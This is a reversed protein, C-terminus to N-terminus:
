ITDGREKNETRDRHKAKDRERRRKVELTLLVIEVVKEVAAAEGEGPEYKAYMAREIMKAYSNVFLRIAGNDDFSDAASFLPQLSTPSLSSINPCLAQRMTHLTSLIYTRFHMNEWKTGPRGWGEQQGTTAQSIHAIVATRTYETAIHNAVKKPLDVTKTPIYPKPMTRLIRKISLVRSWVHMIAIIGLAVYSGVLVIINWKRQHGTRWAQEGLGWASGVLLVGIILIFLYFSTHYLISRLRRLSFLPSRNYRRRRGNNNNNSNQKKKNDKTPKVSQSPTGPGGSPSFPFLTSPRPTPAAAAPSATTLSPRQTNFPTSFTTSTRPFFLSSTPLSTRPSDVAPSVVGKQTQVTNPTM